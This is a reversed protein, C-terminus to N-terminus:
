QIREAEIASWHNSSKWVRFGYGELLNIYSLLTGDTIHHFEINMYNVSNVWELDKDNFIDLEAGEIDMKLFDVQTIKNDTLIKSITISQVEKFTGKEAKNIVYADSDNSDDYKIVTDSNWVALNFLHVNPLSSCNIKALEYNERDMEFGYITSDPFLLKYDIITAGINSGLDLIVQEKKHSLLIGPRHYRKTFVDVLCNRDFRNKCRITIPIKNVGTFKVKISVVKKRFFYSYVYYKILYPFLLLKYNFLFENYHFRMKSTVDQM